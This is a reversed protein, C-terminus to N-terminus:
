VYYIYLLLLSFYVSKNNTQFFDNCLQIFINKTLAQIMAPHKAHPLVWM